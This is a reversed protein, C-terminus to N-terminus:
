LALTWFSNLHVSSSKDAYNLGINPVCCIGGSGYTIFNLNVLFPTLPLEDSRSPSQLTERPAALDRWNGHGASGPVMESSKVGCCAEQGLSPGALERCGQSSALFM